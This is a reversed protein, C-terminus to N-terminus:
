LGSAKWDGETRAFDKTGLQRLLVMHRDLREVLRLQAEYLVDRVRNRRYEQYVADGFGAQELDRLRQEFTEVPCTPRHPFGMAGHECYSCWAVTTGPEEGYDVGLVTWGDVEAFDQDIIDAKGAWRCFATIGKLADFPDFGLESELQAREFRSERWTRGLGYQSCTITRGGPDLEGGSYCRESM